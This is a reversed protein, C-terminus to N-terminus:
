SKYKRHYLAAKFLSKTDKHDFKMFTPLIKSSMYPTVNLAYLSTKYNGLICHVIERIFGYKRLIWYLWLHDWGSNTHSCPDAIYPTTFGCSIGPCQQMLNYNGIDSEIHYHQNDLFM